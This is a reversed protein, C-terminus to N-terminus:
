HGDTALPDIREVLDLVDFDRDTSLIRRIGRDEMTAVHVADRASLRPHHALLDLARATQRETIPLIEACIDTAARYVTRASDPRNISFYRHLIEQLVEASTTLTVRREVAAHLASRCRIRRAPDDGALYMFINTDVFVTEAGLSMTAPDNM